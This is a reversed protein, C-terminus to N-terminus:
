PHSILVNGTRSDRVLADGTGTGIRADLLVDETRVDHSGPEHTVFWQREKFLFAGM